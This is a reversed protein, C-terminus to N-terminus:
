KPNRLTIIITTRVSCKNIYNIVKGAIAYRMNAHQNDRENAEYKMEENKKSDALLQISIIMITIIMHMVLTASEHTKSCTQITTLFFPVMQFDSLKKRHKFINREQFVHSSIAEAMALM